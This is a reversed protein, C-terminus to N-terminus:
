GCLPEGDPGRMARAEADAGSLRDASLATLTARGTCRTDCGRPLTAPFTVRGGDFLADFRCTAGFDMRLKDRGTASGRAVCRQGDAYDVSAGVRLSGGEGVICLRDTASAYAGVPDLRAPNAVMGVQIAAVELARGAGDEVVPDAPERDCGMLALALAFVPAIM